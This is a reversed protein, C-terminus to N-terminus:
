VDCIRIAEKLSAIKDEAKPIFEQAVYGKFGTKLIAKMIAPYYLEQSENIENRGPVGGTHYHSIRDQYTQITRIVDGEMIQMHYIDYLLKFNPSGLKDVLAVGWPTKDCQYDKHDVKSNLLEMIVTVNKSEAHKVIKDLGKACNELGAAESIQNRNGSFVIVQKIGADAAKDILGIYPQYLKTHNKPDNFGEVINAFEDTALSCKLGYKEVTAWESPTLLDIAELGVSKGKEAFEELPLSNYCWRCASHHINGKPTWNDITSATETTAPTSECSSLTSGLALAGSGLVINEIATRRKIKRKM